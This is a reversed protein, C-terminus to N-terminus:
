KGLCGLLRQMAAERENIDDLSEAADMTMTGTEGTSEVRVQMSIKRGQLEAVPIEDASRTRSAKVKKPSSGRQQEAPLEKIFQKMPRDVTSNGTLTFEIPLLAAKQPAFPRESNPTNPDLDERFNVWSNQARTEMTLAWRAWMNSTMAMHNKWAAEEGKPGFQVPTVSHAFYDHVARLLDNYLMPYNNSDTLGSNGLLPHTSFDQGEPGFKGPETALIFLHNNDLVDRRMAASGAPYPEGEGRYVEVKIPLAKYQRALEKALERYAKRVAPNKLDNDPLAEYAKAIRQQLAQQQEDIEAAQEFTKVNGLKPKGDKGEIQNLYGAVRKATESSIGTGAPVDGRIREYGIAGEGYGYPWLQAVSRSLTGGAEGLLGDATSANAYFQKVAQEDRPDGVYYAEVFDDGFTLGYLGSKKIVTEIQRRPLAERLDWRYVPTAYSGDAFATGIKAKIGRRVHVQEQNFNDAFKALAALVAQRDEDAFSVTLALSSEIEGGYLGTAGNAKVRASTGSLLHRLNDLAIDQLLQHALGDKKAAAAQLAAIGPISSTNASLSVTIKDRAVEPPLTRGVRKAPDPDLDQRFSTGGDSAFKGADSGEWAMQRIGGALASVEERAADRTIEGRKFRDWIKDVKPALQDKISAPFLARVAEWTISQMERPLIGRRAAADRYADAFLGYTGSAGSEVNQGAGPQGKPTTGFNHSVELSSGSLAKIFAAAVAHTDITVHGDGSNPSIINNFFNRVKHEDGLQEDINRFSPDNLISVAKEISDFGGWTVSADGDDSNTVYDGFGGEPTVLRYQREYYAEDFARVFYAAQRDNLQSLKMGELPRVQDLYAQRKAKTDVDKSANVWSQFWATMAPSWAENQRQKYIAIVREGLSVNKFWDMQPSLVALVGSSQRATVGYKKVWDNAIRNAGDYWLKARARIEAPVKDHLWLLNDVIVDHLERLRQDSDGEGLLVNYEAIANMVANVHTQSQKVDDGDIVWKEDYSNSLRGKNPAPVPRTTSVEVRDEPNEFDARRRSATVSEGMQQRARRAAERLRDGLTQPQAPAPQTAPEPAAAPQELRVTNAARATEAEMQMASIRQEKAYQAIATRVAAKVADADKIFDTSKFQGQSVVKKFANIARALAAALRAIIATAQDPSNASIEAFVESWFAPDQFENGVLDATLEEINAGEGYYERFQARGQQVLNRAVVTALARYAIPNDRKLLHLLEHGFVALPSVSSESNLYISKNDEDRVFGDAKLTRSEFVVLQKGFIRAIQRLLGGTAGLSAPDVVRVEHNVGQDTISITAGPAQGRPSSLKVNSTNVIAGNSPLGLARAVREGMLGPTTPSAPTAPTQPAPATLERLRLKDTATLTAPAQAAKQLVNVDAASMRQQAQSITLRQETTRLAPAIGFASIIADASPAQAPQSTQEIQAQTTREAQAREAARRAEQEAMSEANSAAPSPTSPRAGFGQSADQGVDIGTAATLKQDTSAPRGISPDIRNYPQGMNAARLLEAEYPSAVGGRAEINAMTRSIMDQRPADEARRQDVAGALAASELRAQTQEATPATSTSPLDLSPLEQRAIAFKGAQSPHAVAALGLADGGERAAQDRLVALRQQAQMPDMPTLDVFDATTRERAPPLASQAQDLANQRDFEFGASNAQGILEANRDAMSRLEPITAGPTTAAAPAAAGPTTAAASPPAEGSALYASTARELDVVSSAMENAAAAAEAANRSVALAAQARKVSQDVASEPNSGVAREFLGRGAAMAVGQGVGLVSEDVVDLPDVQGYALKQGAAESAGEGLMEATVIGTGRVTKAGLTNRAAQRAEIQALQAAGAEAGVAGTRLGETLTRAEKALAREGAGAVGLTVANLVADTGATGLGKLRSKELFEDYKAEIIPKLAEPDRPDVKAEQAAKLIQDRMAAGQEILYGGATGAAVGGILGGAVAGKPGAIAGAMAGAKAGGLGAAMGPASNPLSEVVSGALESPNSVFQAIRKAALSAYASVNDVFGEAEKAREAYPKIEEAMQRQAANQPLQRRQEEAIVQAMKEPDSTASIEGAAVTSRLGQRARAIFGQDEVKLWNSQASPDGGTFQYAGIVSGIRLDLPEWNKQDGPDGGVFRYNGVETGPKIPDAM